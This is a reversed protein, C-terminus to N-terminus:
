RRLNLNTKKLTRRVTERGVTDLIGLAVVQDALLNISWRSRGAPPESCALAILRAEEEGTFKRPRPPTQRKKRELAGLPGKGIASERLREVTKVTCGYTEAIKEDPWAQGHESQDCALLAQARKIKYGPVNGKRVIQELKSRQEDTLKVQHKKM